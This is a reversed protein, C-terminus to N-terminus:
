TAARVLAFATAGGIIVLTGTFAWWLGHERDLLGAVGFLTGPVCAVVCVLAADFPGAFVPLISCVAGLVVVWWGWERRSTPLYLLLNLLNGM